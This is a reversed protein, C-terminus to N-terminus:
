CRKFTVKHPLLVVDVVQVIDNVCYNTRKRAPRQIRQAILVVSRPAFGQYFAVSKYEREIVRNSSHNPEGSRGEEEGCGVRRM